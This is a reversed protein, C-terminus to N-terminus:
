KSTTSESKVGVGAFTSWAKTDVNKKTKNQGSMSQVLLTKLKIGDVGWGWRWRKGWADGVVAM